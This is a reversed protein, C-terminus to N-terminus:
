RGTWQPASLLSFKTLSLYLSYAMPILTFGFIGILWPAIFGYGALNHKHRKRKNVRVSAPPRQPPPVPVVAPAAVTNESM